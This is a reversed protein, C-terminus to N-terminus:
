RCVEIEYQCPNVDKVKDIYPVESSSGVCCRIVVNAKRHTLRNTVVDLICDENV